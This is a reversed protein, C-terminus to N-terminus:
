DINHTNLLIIAHRIRTYMYIADCESLSIKTIREQHFIDMFHIQPNEMIYIHHYTM